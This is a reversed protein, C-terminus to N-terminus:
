QPLDVDANPLFYYMSAGCNSLIRTSENKKHSFPSLFAKQVLELRSTAASPSAEALSDLPVRANRAHRDTSRGAFESGM